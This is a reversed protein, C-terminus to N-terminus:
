GIYAIEDNSSVRYQKNAIGLALMYFCIEEVVCLYPM